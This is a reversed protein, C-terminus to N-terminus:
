DISIRFKEVVLHDVSFSYGAAEMRSKLPELEKAAAEREHLVSILM